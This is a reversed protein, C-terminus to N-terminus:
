EHRSRRLITTLPMRPEAAPLTKPVSPIYPAYVGFIIM